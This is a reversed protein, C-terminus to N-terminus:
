VFDGDVRKPMSTCGNCLVGGMCTTMKSIVHEKLRGNQKV